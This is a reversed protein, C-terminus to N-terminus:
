PGSHFTFDVLAIANKLLFVLLCSLILERKQGFSIEPELSSIHFM